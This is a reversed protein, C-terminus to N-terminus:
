DGGKPNPTERKLPVEVWYEFWHRKCYMKDGKFLVYTFLYRADELTQPLINVNKQVCRKTAMMLRRGTSEPSRYIQFRGAQRGTNDGHISGENSREKHSAERHREDDM